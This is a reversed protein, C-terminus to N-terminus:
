EPTNRSHTGVPPMTAILARLVRKVADPTSFVQAIDPELIVVLSGDPQKPAFRNPKAKTYDFQYDPQMDERAFDEAESQHPEQNM